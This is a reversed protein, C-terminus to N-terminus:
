INIRISKKQSATCQAVSEADVIKFVKKPQNTIKEGETDTLHGHFSDRYWSKM